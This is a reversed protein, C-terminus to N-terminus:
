RYSSQRLIRGKLTRKMKMRVGLVKYKEKSKKLFFNHKKIRLKLEGFIYRYKAKKPRVKSPRLELLGERKYDYQTGGRLVAWSLKQAINVNKSELGVSILRPLATKNATEQIQLCM